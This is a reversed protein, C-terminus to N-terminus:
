SRSSSNEPSDKCILRALEPWQGDAASHTFFVTPLGLKDIMAILRIRQKFWYQETRRLNSAYHMVKKSFQEGGCEVMSKLEDLSLRADKPHQKIYVCGAQLAHWRMETNLAFYRFRLHRAFRGDDYRVLHNFYNGVTVVRERPALFDGAGTPFLTPFACLMYGEMNFENVPTDARHPWPVTTHDASKQREQISKKVAEIETM